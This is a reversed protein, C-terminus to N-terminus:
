GQQLRLAGSVTDVKIEIRGDGYTNNRMAFDNGQSGSVTDFRLTFGSGEPLAIRVDGSVSDASIKELRETKTCEVETGGSTTDVDIERAGEAEIRISGSTSDVNVEGFIGRAEIDGSMTDARLKSAQVNGVAIRGSVSDARLEKHTGGDISIDGSTTGYLASAANTEGATLRGSVTEIDVSGTFSRPIMVRVDIQYSDAWGFVRGNRGSQVVLEGNKVGYHMVDESKITHDSTEEVRIVDDDTPIVTINEDVFRMSLERIGGADKEFQESAQADDPLKDVFDNVKLNSISNVFNGWTGGFSSGGAIGWILVGTLVAAIVAFFVFVFWVHGGGNIGCIVGTAMAFFVYTIDKPDGPVTRYRCLTFVGALSLASAMSNIMVLVIAVIPPLMLLTMVYSQTYGSKKHTFIYVLSILFGMVVGLILAFLMDGVSATSTTATVNSLLSSLESSTATLANTITNLM